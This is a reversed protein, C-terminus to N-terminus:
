SFEACGAGWASSFEAEEGGWHLFGPGSGEGEMLVGGVAQRNLLAHARSFWSTRKQEKILSIPKWLEWQSEAPVLGVLIRSSAQEM